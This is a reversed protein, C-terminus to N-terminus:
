STINFIFNFINKRSRTINIIKDRSGIISINEREKNFKIEMNHSEIEGDEFIEYFIVSDGIVHLIGAYLIGDYDSDLDCLYIDNMYKVKM